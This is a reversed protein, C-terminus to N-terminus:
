DLTRVRSDVREQLGRDRPQIAEAGLRETPYERGEGQHALVLARQRPLEQGASGRDSASSPRSRWLYLITAMMILLVVATTWSLLRDRRRVADVFSAVIRTVPIAMLLVLGARLVVQTADVGVAWFILGIMLTTASVAVGVKLLRAIWTELRTLRELIM